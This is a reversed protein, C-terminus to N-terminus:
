VLPLTDEQKTLYHVGIELSLVHYIHELAQQIVSIKM